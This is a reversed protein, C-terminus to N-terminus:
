VTDHRTTASSPWGTSPVKVKVIAPLGDGEAEGLSDVLEDALTADAVLVGTVLSEDEVFL